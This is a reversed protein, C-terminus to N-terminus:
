SIKWMIKDLAKYGYSPSGKRYEEIGLYLTQSAVAANVRTAVMSLIISALSIILISLIGKRIKM